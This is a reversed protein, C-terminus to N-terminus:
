TLSFHYAIDIPLERDLHHFFISGNLAFTQFDASGHLSNAMHRFTFFCLLRLANKFAVVFM